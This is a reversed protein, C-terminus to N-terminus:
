PGTYRDWHITAPLTLTFLNSKPIIPNYRVQFSGIWWEYLVTRISGNGTSPGYVHNARRQHSDATYAANSLAPNTGLSGTPSSNSDLAVPEGSYVAGGSAAFYPENNVPLRGGWANGVRSARVAVAYTTGSIVHEDNVDAIPPYVFLSYVVKLQEDSAVPFAVPVGEDDRVLAHAFASTNNAGWGITLETVNGVLAGLAFTFTYDARTGYTPSGLYARNFAGGTGVIGPSTGLVTGSLGTDAFAPETTGTGVKCVNIPDYNTAIYNLGQNTILNPFPGRSRRDEFSQERLVIGGKTAQLTVMGRFRMRLGIPHNSELDKYRNFYTM